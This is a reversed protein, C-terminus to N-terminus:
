HKKTEDGETVGRIWSDFGCGYIMSNFLWKINDKGLPDNPDKSYYKSITKVINDFDNTYRTFM